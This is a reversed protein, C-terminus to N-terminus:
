PKNGGDAAHKNLWDLGQRIMGFVDGRWGHGGEYTKFEVRAGHAQLTERAKEAMKIPIFDQPSHLLYYSRGKAAPLNPLEQARFVSMAVFSGTVKTAPDLSAAYAAPGGSSWSLTFVRQPDLRETCGVEAVVAAIFEETTFKVAPFRTKATPWVVAKSQQADWKPAVLQVVLWGDPVANRAINKIFPQFEASGDGGPMVMLLPRTEKPATSEGPKRIIFYLTSADGGAYHKAAIIDADDSPAQAETIMRLGLVAALMLLHSATKM